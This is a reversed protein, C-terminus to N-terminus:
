FIPRRLSVTGGFRGRLVVDLRPGQADRRLTVDATYTLSPEGDRAAPPTRPELRVRYTKPAQATSSGAGAGPVEEIAAVRWAISFSRSKAEVEKGAIHLTLSRSEVDVIGKEVPSLPRNPTITQLTWDGDLEQSLRTLKRAPPTASAPSQLADALTPEPAIAARGDYSAIGIASLGGVLAVLAFLGSWRSRLARRFRSVRQRVVLPSIGREAAIDALREGDHERVLWEMTEADRRTRPEELLTKLMEREELAPAGSAIAEPAASSMRANTRASHRHFDAVKHRAIGTLWKRLEEPDSPMTRAALADCLVTQAVDEVDQRPVRRQLLATLGRRVDGAAIEDGRGSRIPAQPDHGAGTPGKPESFALTM